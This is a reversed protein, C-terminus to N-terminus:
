LRMRSDSYLQYSVFVTGLTAVADAYYMMVYLSLFLCGLSLSATYAQCSRSLVLM